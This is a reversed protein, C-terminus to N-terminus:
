IQPKDAAPLMKAQVDWKQIIGKLFIDLNKKNGLSKKHDLNNQNKNMYTEKRFRNLLIVNIQFSFIEFDILSMM